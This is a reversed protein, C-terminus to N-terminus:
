AESPPNARQHVLQWCWEFLSEALIFGGVWWWTTSTFVWIHRAVFVGGWTAIFLAAQERWTLPPRHTRMWKIIM